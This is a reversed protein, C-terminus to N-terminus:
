KKKGTMLAHLAYAVEARTANSKPRINDGSVLLLGQRYTLNIASKYSKAIKNNDAFTKSSNKNVITKKFKKEYRVLMLVMAQRSIKKNPSFKTKSTGKIIGKSYAWKIAKGVDGTKPVDKFPTKKTVKPKGHARWLFTVFAKRTLASNPSFKTASTGKAIGKKYIYEIAKYFKSDKPVDKFPISPKSISLNTDANSGDLYYPASNNAKILKYLNLRGYKFKAGYNISRNDPTKITKEATGFLKNKIEINSLEPSESKLLSLLGTAVAAACSTGNFARQYWVSGSLDTCMYTGKVAIDVLSNSYTSYSAIGYNDRDLAGVRILTNISLNKFQPMSSNTLNGSDNGASVVFLGHYANLTDQTSQSQFPVGLSMNILNVGMKDAYNIAAIFASESIWKGDASVISLDILKVNPAIKSIVSAVNTGHMGGYTKHAYNQFRSENEFFNWGSYDDIYGNKDNDIGDGPLDNTNYFRNYDTYDTHIGTDIIGVVVANKGSSNVQEAKNYDFSDRLALSKLDKALTDITPITADLQVPYKKDEEYNKVLSSSTIKQYDQGSINDIKIINAKEYLIDISDEEVDLNELLDNIEVNNKLNVILSEPTKAFSIVPMGLFVNFSIALAILLSITRSLIGMKDKMM